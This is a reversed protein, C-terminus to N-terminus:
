HEYPTFGTLDRQETSASFVTWTKAAEQYSMTLTWGNLSGGTQVIKTPLGTAGSTLVSEKQAIYLGWGNGDNVLSTTKDIDDLLHDRFGKTEGIYDDEPFLAALGKEAQPKREELIKNPDGNETLSWKLASFKLGYLDVLDNGKATISTDEPAEYDESSATKKELQETTYPTYTDVVLQGFAIRDEVPVSDSYFEDVPMNNYEQVQETSLTTKVDPGAELVSAPSVTESSYEPAEASPTASEASSEGPHAPASAGPEQRPETGHHNGSLALATAGGAVVVTAALATGVIRKTRRSVRDWLSAEEESSLANLALTGVREPAYAPPPPLEQQESTNSAANERGEGNNPQKSYVETSM